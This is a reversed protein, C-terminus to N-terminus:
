AGPFGGVQHPFMMMDFSMAMNGTGFFKAVLGETPPVKSLFTLGM